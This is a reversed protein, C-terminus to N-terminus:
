ERNLNNHSSFFDFYKSNETEFIERGEIDFARRFYRLADTESGTEFAIEGLRLMIFPDNENDGSPSRRAADFFEYARVFETKAFYIDGLATLYWVTEIYADRPEPILELGSQCAREAEELRGEDILAHIEEGLKILRARTEAPLNYPYPPRGKRFEGKKKKDSRKM